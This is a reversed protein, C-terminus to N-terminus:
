IAVEKLWQPYTYFVFHLIRHPFFLMSLAGISLFPGFPIYSDKTLIKQIIGFFAGLFCAILFAMLVHKYGLFGGIMGMYKVDGFGMAEKAFIKKGVIAVLWIIGAGAAIGALSHLVAQIAPSQGFWAKGLTPMPFPSPHLKPYVAALVPAFLMGTKDIEDPIIRLDIDVFSCVILASVFGGYIVMKPWDLSTPQLYRYALFVLLAGTLLEVLPYRLPILVRCTRCRGGQLFYSLLPLNEYWKLTIYCHPCFSFLPRDIRLGHRPLRYICVNLFSGWCLGFVGIVGLWISFPIKDFIM